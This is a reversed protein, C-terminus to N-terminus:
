ATPHGWRRQHEEFAGPRTCDTARFDTMEGASFCSTGNDTHDIFPTKGQAELSAAEAENAAAVHGMDEFM